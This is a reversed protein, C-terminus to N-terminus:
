YVCRFGAREETHPREVVFEAAPSTPWAGRSNGGGRDAEVFEPAGGIMGLVGFPSRSSDKTNVTVYEAFWDRSATTELRVVRNSDWKNGWPYLSQTGGHAAAEWEVATPLRGRRDSCFAAAANKSVVAAERDAHWRKQVPCRGARVCVDYESYLVARRDIKYHSIEVKRLDNALCYDLRDCGVTYIGSPIRVMTSLQSRGCAYLLFFFLRSLYGMTTRSRVRKRIASTAFVRCNVVTAGILTKMDSRKSNMISEVQKRPQTHSCGRCGRFTSGTTICSTHSCHRTLNDLGRQPRPQVLFGFM